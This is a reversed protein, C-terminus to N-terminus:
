VVLQVSGAQLEVGAM